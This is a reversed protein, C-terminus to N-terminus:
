IQSQANITTGPSACAALLFAVVLGAIPHKTMVTRYMSSYLFKLETASPTQFRGAICTSIGSLIDFRDSFLLFCPRKLRVDLQDPLIGLAKAILERTSQPLEEAHSL